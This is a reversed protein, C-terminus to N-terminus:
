RKRFRQTSGPYTVVRATGGAVIHMKSKGNTPKLRRAYTPTLEWRGKQRRAKLVNRGGVTSSRSLFGHTRLRKHKKFKGLM